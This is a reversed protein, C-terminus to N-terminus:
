LFNQEVKLLSPVEFQIGEETKGGEQEGAAM